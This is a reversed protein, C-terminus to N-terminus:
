IFLRTWKCRNAIHHGISSWIEMNNWKSFKVGMTTHSWVVEEKQFGPLHINGSNLLLFETDLPTGNQTENPSLWVNGTGLQRCRLMLPDTSSESPEHASWFSYLSLSLFIHESVCFHQKTNNTKKSKKRKKKKQIRPCWGELFCEFSITIFPFPCCM